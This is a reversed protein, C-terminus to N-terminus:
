IAPPPGYRNAGSQSPRTLLFILGGLAALYALNSGFITLFQTGDPFAAGFHQFTPAMLRFANILLLVPGLGLLGSRGSDHLRRAVAAALLLITVIAQAAILGMFGSLDIALDPPLPGHFTIQTGGTGTVVDAQDPHALAYTQLKAMVPMMMAMAPVMGIATTGLFVTLAFPWFQEVTDRGSPSLLRRFGRLIFSLAM